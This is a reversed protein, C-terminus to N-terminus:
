AVLNTAYSSFFVKTGDASFIAQPMTPGNGRSGDSATSVRTIAPITAGFVPAANAAAIGTNGLQAIDEGGYGTEGDDPVQFPTAIGVRSIVDNVGPEHTDLAILSAHSAEVAGAGRGIDNFGKVM